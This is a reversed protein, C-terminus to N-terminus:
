KQVSHITMMTYWYIGFATGEDKPLEERCAKLLNTYNEPTCEAESAVVGTGSQASGKFNYDPASYSSYEDDFDIGDLGYIDVYYKLEKAFAKAGEESLSRMGADDHNGLISM